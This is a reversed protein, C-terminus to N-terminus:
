KREMVQNACIIDKEVGSCMIVQYPMCVKGCTDQKDQGKKSYYIMPVFLVVILLVLLPAEWWKTM